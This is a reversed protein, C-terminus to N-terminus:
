QSGVDERVQKMVHAGFGYSAAKGLWMAIEEPDANDEPLPPLKGGTSVEDACDLVFSFAETIDWGEAEALQFAIDSLYRDMVDIADSINKAGGVGPHGDRAGGPSRVQGEPGWAAEDLQSRVEQVISILKPDM